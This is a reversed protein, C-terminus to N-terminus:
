RRECAKEGIKELSKVAECYVKGRHAYDEYMDFSSCAPSLLVVDGPKAEEWAKYVADRMTSATGVPLIDNFSSVIKEKSEGLAIIMKALHRVTGRLSNFDAEKSRGGMILIVRGSFYELARVVADVNTAKSDNFYEVDNVTSVYELRHSLGKFSNLATQLGNPTGGVSLAALSAACANEIDHKGKIETNTLDITVPGKPKYSSKFFLNISKGNVTTGEENEQRSSFFLKRSSINETCKRIVPDFGNLVATDTNDQNVFIRCKSKVYADFDPYRDLHDKTINLMVSVKPKFSEITDLQFSSVELVIIEAKKNRDVYGILPSGINGGVFVKFGSSILMDGLLTTTTTKGNTGTIAVIPQDIFKSALEIEGIVKVGKDRARQLQSITHPVGPSLVILEANEFTTNKHGGLEMNIGLERIIAGSDGLEDDKAMDTVTVFAGQNVLFRATSVGTMGLGVVLVKKKFLDIM